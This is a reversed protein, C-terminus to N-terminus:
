KKALFGVWFKEKKRFVAVDSFGAKKLYDCIEEIPYMRMGDIMEVWKQDQKNTGDSENVIMFSGGKKLIRYVERFSELPGPWFYITEFATALDVSETKLPLKAVNGQVVRCHGNEISRKNMQETKQVSLESHDLAILRASPYKKILEAANKGGGCGLDAMVKPPQDPLYSRGWASVKAHGSNMARIMLKGKWGSPKGTNNFYDKMFGM